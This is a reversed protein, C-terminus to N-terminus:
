GPTHVLWSHTSVLLTYKGPTHGLWSHTSVLLTHQGPTHASWSHTSVLLTHQGPTHASWPHTSVKHLLVNNKINLYMRVYKINYKEPHVGVISFFHEEKKHKTKQHCAYFGGSLLCTIHMNYTLEEKVKPTHKWTDTHLYMHM